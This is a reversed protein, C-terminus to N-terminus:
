LLLKQIEQDLLRLRPGLNQALLAAARLEITGGRKRAREIIWRSLDRQKPVVFSLVKGDNKKAWTVVAHKASLNRSEVFILHTTPPMDPLYGTIEKGLPGKVEKLADYYIVIRTDGLFPLSSCVQRLEGLTPTGEHIETNLARLDLTMHAEDLIDSLAEQCSLENDGHLITLM